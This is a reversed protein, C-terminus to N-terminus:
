INPYLNIFYDIISTEGEVFKRFQDEFQDSGSQGLLSRYYGVAKLVNLFEREEFSGPYFYCERELGLRDQMECVFNPYLGIEDNNKDIKKLYSFADNWNNFKYNSDMEKIKNFVNLRLAYGQYRNIRGERQEFKVPNFELSWHVIKRCYVHFDFGEQGISTSIFQFPLFPSNFRAIKNNLSETATSKAGKDGSYHGVAFRTSMRVSKKDGLTSVNVDSSETSLIRALAELYSEKEKKNSKKWEAKIYERYEKLVEIIQGNEGYEEIASYVDGKTTYALIVRLSSIKTMYKYYALCANKAEDENSESLLFKYINNNKEIAKECLKEALEAKDWYCDHSFDILKSYDVLGNDDDQNNFYHIQCNSANNGLKNRLDCVVRRNAEYTLIAALSKPTMNYDTFFLRKSIGRKDKFVGKLEIDGRSPPIFLLKHIGEVEFIQKFLSAM